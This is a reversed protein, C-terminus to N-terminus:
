NWYFSRDFGKSLLKSLNQNDRASLTVVPVYLKTDEINFIINDPNANTNDNCEASLVCDKTWIRKVEVKCNILPIELSRWFDSLYKLPVAIRENKLLGNAANPAPQAVKTELLKAIYEFSKFNNTNGINNNFNNAEDKSYFCLNGTIESVSSSYEILNEADDITTENIKTIRKIFPTRNKFVVQTTSAATVTIGGSVPIYTHNYDCISSKLAETNYTIENKAKYNTNAIDNVINWKRMVFKSDNAENM